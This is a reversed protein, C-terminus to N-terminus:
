VTATVPLGSRVTSVPRPTRDTTTVTTSVMLAWSPMWSSRMEPQITAMRNQPTSM